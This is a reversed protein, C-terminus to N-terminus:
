ITQINPMSARTKNPSDDDLIFVSSDHHLLPKSFVKGPPLQSREPNEITRFGDHKNRVSKSGYISNIMSSNDGHMSMSVISPHKKVRSSPSTVKKKGLSHAQTSNVLGTVTKGLQKSHAHLSKLESPLRLNSLNVNQPDFEKIWSFVSVAQSLIFKIREQRFVESEKGTRVSQKTLEVFLVSFESLQKHLIDICRMQM